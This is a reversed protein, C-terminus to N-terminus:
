GNTMLIAKVNYKPFVAAYEYDTIELYAEISQEGMYGYESFVGKLDILKSELHQELGELLQRQRDTNLVSKIGHGSLTLGGGIPSYVTGDSVQVVSNVNRGRLTLRESETTITVAEVGQIRYKTVVEPWNRHIIEIVEKDAWAGHPFINIAFFQDNTLLAFLLPGTREIFDGEIDEGLHFHHVGWDNLMSDKNNLRNVLKSLNPTLDGGSQILNKLREWGGLLSTPCQFVDSVEIVRATQIPRRKAANFYVFPLEELSTNSVDYGWDDELIDKIINLWDCFFDANLKM